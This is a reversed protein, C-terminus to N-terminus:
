FEMPLFVLSEEFMKFIEAYSENKEENRGNSVKGLVKWKSPKLCRYAYIQDVFDM